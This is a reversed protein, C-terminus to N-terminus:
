FDGMDIRIRHGRYYAALPHWASDGSTFEMLVKAHEEVVGFVMHYFDVHSGIQCLDM